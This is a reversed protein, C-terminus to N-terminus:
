KITSFEEDLDNRAEGAEVSAPAVENAECAALTLAATILSLVKLM